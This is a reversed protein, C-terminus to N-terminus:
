AKVRKWGGECATRYVLYRAETGISFVFGFPSQQAKIFKVKLIRALYPAAAEEKMVKAYDSFPEYAREDLWRGYLRDLTVGIRKSFEDLKKM